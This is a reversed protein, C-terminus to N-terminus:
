AVRSAAIAANALLQRHAYTFRCGALASQGGARVRLVASHRNLYSTGPSLDVPYRLDQRLLFGQLQQRAKRVSEM